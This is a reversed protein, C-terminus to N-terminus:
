GTSGRGNRGETTESRDDCSGSAHQHQQTYHYTAAHGDSNQAEDSFIFCFASRQVIWHLLFQTQYSHGGKSVDSPFHRNIDNADM